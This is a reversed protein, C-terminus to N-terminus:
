PANFAVAHARVTCCGPDRQFLVWGERESHRPVFPVTLEASEIRSEGSVLEVNVLVDEATTQGTNRILVPIRYGGRTVTSPGTEIVLLPPEDGAQMGAQVLVIMVGALLVASIAFVTWELINKKAKM